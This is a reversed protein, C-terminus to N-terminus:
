AELKNFEDNSQKVGVATQPFADPKSDTTLYFSKREFGGKRERAGKHRRESGRLIDVHTGVVLEVVEDGAPSICTVCSRLSRQYVHCM